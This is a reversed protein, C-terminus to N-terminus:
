EIDIVVNGAKLGAEVYRHADAVKELPYRKDIIAKLTGAQLQDRLFELAEREYRAFQFIVKRDSIMSTWVARLMQTLSPNGLVLRGGPNLLAVFRSYNTKGVVDIICDYKQNGSAFDQKEFDIVHAAGLDKLMQLKNGRDVCTVEAGNAQALQLAYTGISGGSGIILVRDGKKINAKRVFHLANIGGTPITAAEGYGLEKGAFATVHKRPLCIYQAYAGMTITTYAFVRDGKNLDTIEKGTAEVDGALEQGLVGRRPKTIGIILRLPLWFLVPISFRRIECDGMTVTAARIRILVESDSPVPMAVDRLQM